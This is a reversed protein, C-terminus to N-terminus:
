IYHSPQVSETDSVSDTDSVPLIRYQDTYSRLGLFTISPKLTPDALLEALEEEVSMVPPKRTATPQKHSKM